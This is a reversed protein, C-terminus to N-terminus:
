TMLSENKLNTPVSSYGARTSVNPEMKQRSFGKLLTIKLSVQGSFDLKSRFSLLNKDKPLSTRKPLSM